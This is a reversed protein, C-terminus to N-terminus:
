QSVPASSIMATIQSPNCDSQLRIPELTVTMPDAHLAQSGFPPIQECAKCQHVTDQETSSCSAIQSTENKSSSFLLHSLSCASPAHDQLVQHSTKVGRAHEAHNVCEDVPCAVLGLLDKSLLSLRLTISTSLASQSQRLSCSPLIPNCSVLPTLFIFQLDRHDWANEFLSEMSMRRNVQVRM